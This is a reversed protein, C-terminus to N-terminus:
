KGNKEMRDNERSRRMLYTDPYKKYTRKRIKRFGVKEYCAIARPNDINVGLDIENELPFNQFFWDLAARIALTGFGKNWCDKEGIAIYIEYKKKFQILIHGIPKDDCEIIFDYYLSNALHGLMTKDIVKESMSEFTGSTYERLEKDNWWKYFLPIDTKHLKRLTIKAMKRMKNQQSILDRKFMNAYKMISVATCVTFSKKNPAFRVYTKTQLRM